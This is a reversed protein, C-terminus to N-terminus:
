EEVYNFSYGAAGFREKLEQGQIAIELVQHLSERRVIGDIFLLGSGYDNYRFLIEESNRARFDITTRSPHNITLASKRSDLVSVFPTVAELKQFEKSEFERDQDADYAWTGPERYPSLHAEVKYCVDCWSGTYPVPGPYHRTHGFDGCFECTSCFGRPIGRSILSESHENWLVTCYCNESM